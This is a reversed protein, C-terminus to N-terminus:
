KPLNVYIIPGYIAALSRTGDADTTISTGIVTSRLDNNSNKVRLLNNLNLHFEKTPTLITTDVRFDQERRRQHVVQGEETTGDEYTVPAPGAVTNEDDIYPKIMAGVNSVICNGPRDCFEPTATLQRGGAAPSIIAEKLEWGQEKVTDKFKAWRRRSEEETLEPQAQPQAVLARILRVCPGM